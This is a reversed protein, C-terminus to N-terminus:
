AIWAKRKFMEYAESAHKAEDFEMLGIADLKIFLRILILVAFFVILLINAYKHLKKM